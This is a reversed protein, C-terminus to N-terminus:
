GQKVNYSLTMRSLVFLPQLANITYTNRMGHATIDDSRLLEESMQEVM